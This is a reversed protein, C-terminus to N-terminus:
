MNSLLARTVTTKIWTKNLTLKRLPMLISILIPLLIIVMKVMTTKEQNPLREM